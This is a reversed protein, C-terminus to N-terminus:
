RITATREAGTQSVAAGLLSGLHEFLYEQLCLASFSLVDRLANVATFMSVAFQCGWTSYQLSQIVRVLQLLQWGPTTTMVSRAPGASASLGVEDQHEVSYASTVNKVKSELAPYVVQELAAAAAALDVFMASQGQAIVLAGPLGVCM